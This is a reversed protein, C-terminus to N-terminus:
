FDRWGKNRYTSCAIRGARNEVCVRVHNDNCVQDVYWYVHKPYNSKIYSRMKKYSSGTRVCYRESGRLELGRGDGNGLLLYESGGQNNYAKWGGTFSQGESVHNAFTSGAFMMLAFLAGAIIKFFENGKTM